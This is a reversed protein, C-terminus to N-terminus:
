IITKCGPKSERIRCWSKAFVRTRMGHREERFLRGGRPDHAAAEPYYDIAARIASVLKGIQGNDLWRLKHSLV